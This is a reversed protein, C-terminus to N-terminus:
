ERENTMSRHEKQRRALAAQAQAESRASVKCCALLMAANGLLLAFLAILLITGM